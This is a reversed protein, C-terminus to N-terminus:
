NQEDTDDDDTGDTDDATGSLLGSAELRAILAAAEESQTPAAEESETLAQAVEAQAALEETTSEAAAAVSGASKSDSTDICHGSSHKLWSRGDMCEISTCGSDFCVCAENAYVGCGLQRLCKMEGGLFGCYRYGVMRDGNNCKQYWEIPYPTCKGTWYEGRGASCIAVLLFTAVAFKM